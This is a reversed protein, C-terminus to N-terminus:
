FKEMAPRLDLELTWATSHQLYIQWYTEVFIEPNGLKQQVQDFASTVSAPDTANASISLATGGDKEIETKLSTLKEESRAMLGVAFGERAFRHAIAAGLGPGM